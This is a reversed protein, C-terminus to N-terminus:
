ILLVAVAGSGGLRANASAFGRVLPACLGQTLADILAPLLVGTGDESHLGKGVIFLLHRAGRRHHTRVFSSVTDVLRATTEGHLDLTAEPTFGQGSLRYISKQSADTRWAEVFTDDRRVKFHVGGSVLEALRKRAALEEVREEESRGRRSLQRTVVQRAGKRATETLPRTGAYADNLMRLESAPSPASPDRPPPPAPAAPARAPTAATAGAKGREAPKGVQVNAAKLLSGLSTTANQPAAAKGAKGARATEEDDSRVPKRRRAM